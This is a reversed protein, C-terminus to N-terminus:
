RIRGSRGRTLLTRVEGPLDDALEDRLRWLRNRGTKVAAGPLVIVVLAAGDIEAVRHPRGAVARAPGIACANELDNGCRVPVGPLRADAFGTTFTAGPVRRDAYATLSVRIERDTKAPGSKVWYLSERHQLFGLGVVSTTGEIAARWVADVIEADAGRTSRSWSGAIEIPDPPVIAELSRAIREIVPHLDLESV